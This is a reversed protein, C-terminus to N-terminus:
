KPQEERSRLTAVQQQYQDFDDADLPRKGYWVREFTEVVPVFADHSPKGRMQQLYERNTRSRDYRVVGREELWLLTSLYLHRTAARYDGAQVAAKARDSAEQATITEEEEVEARVRAEAAVTRRVGRLTYAILALILLAGIVLLVWGVPTLAGFVSPNVNVGPPTINPTPIQPMLNGLWEFFREIARGVGEWFRNWASPIERSKFPPVEFVRDLKQLADADTPTRTQGLADLIAGLSAVILPFDPPEQALADRLWRNDVEVSEENPLEVRTIALLTLASEDLGIRDSRQAAAYAEAIVQQYEDLTASTAQFSPAANASSAGCMLALILWLCILRVLVFAKKV